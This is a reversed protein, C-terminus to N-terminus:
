KQTPKNGFEDIGSVSNDAGSLVGAAYDAVATVSPM